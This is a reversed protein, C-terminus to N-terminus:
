RAPGLRPGGQKCGLLCCTERVKDLDYYFAQPPSFLPPSSTDSGTTSRWCGHPQMGPVGSTLRFGAAVREEAAQLRHGPGPWTPLTIFVHAQPVQRGPETESSHTGPWSRLM